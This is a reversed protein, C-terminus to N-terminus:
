SRRADPATKVAMAFQAVGGEARGVADAAGVFGGTVLGLLFGNNKEARAHMM